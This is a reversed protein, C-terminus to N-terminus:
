EWELSVCKCGSFIKCGRQQTDTKTRMLISTSVHLLLFIIKYKTPQESNKIVINQKENCTSWNLCKKAGECEEM